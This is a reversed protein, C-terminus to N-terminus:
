GIADFLRLLVLVGVTALLVLFLGAEASRLTRKGSQSVAGDDPIPVGASV